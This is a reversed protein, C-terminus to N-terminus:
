IGFALRDDLDAQAAQAAAADFPVHQGVRFLPRCSRGCSEACPRRSTACTRCTPGRRCGCALRSTDQRAIEAAHIRPRRAARQAGANGGRTCFPAAVPVRERRTSVGRIPVAGARNPRLYGLEAFTAPCESSLPAVLLLFRRWGPLATAHDCPRHRSLGPGSRPSTRDVGSGVPLHRCPVGTLGHRNTWSAREFLCDSYSRDDHIGGSRRINCSRRTGAVPPASRRQARGCRRFADIIEAWDVVQPRNESAPPHGPDVVQRARVVQRSGHRWRITRM